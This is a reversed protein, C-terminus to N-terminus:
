CHHHHDDSGDDYVTPLPSLSPPHGGRCATISPCFYQTGQINTVAYWLCEILLWAYQYNAIVKTQDLNSFLITIVTTRQLRTIILLPHTSPHPTQYPPPLPSSPHDILLPLLVGSRSCPTTHGQSPSGLSSPRSASPLPSPMSLQPLPNPLLLTTNPISTINKNNELERHFITHWSSFVFVFM